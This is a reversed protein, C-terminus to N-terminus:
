VLLTGLFLEGKAILQDTALRGYVSEFFSFSGEAPNNRGRNAVMGIVEKLGRLRMSNRLEQISQPCIETNSLLSYLPDSLRKNLPQENFYDCLQCSDAFFYIVLRLCNKENQFMRKILSIILPKLAQNCCDPNM